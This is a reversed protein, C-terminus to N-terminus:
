FSTTFSGRGCCAESRLSWVVGIGVDDRTCCGTRPECRHDDHRAQPLADDSLVFDDLKEEDREESAAVARNTPTGPRAFVRSMVM